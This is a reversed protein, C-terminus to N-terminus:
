CGNIIPPKSNMENESALLSEQSKQPPAPNYLIKPNINSPLHRISIIRVLLVDSTQPVDKPAAAAIVFLYLGGGEAKNLLKAPELVSKFGSQM